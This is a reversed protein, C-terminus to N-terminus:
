ALSAGQYEFACQPSAQLVLLTGNRFLMAASGGSGSSPAADGHRVASSTPAASSQAIPRQRDKVRQQQKQKLKQQNQKHQQQPQVHQHQRQHHQGQQKQQKLKDKGLSQAPAAPGTTIPSGSGSTAQSTASSTSGLLKRGPMTTNANPTSTDHGEVGAARQENSFPAHAAAAAAASAGGTAANDAVHAGPSAPKSGKHKVAARGAGQLAPAQQPFLLQLAASANTSLEPFTDFGLAKADAPRKRFWRCHSSHM